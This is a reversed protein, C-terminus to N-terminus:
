GIVEFELIEVSTGWMFISIAESPQEKLSAKIKLGEKQLKKPLSNPRWKKGTTDIIGWFGGSIKQYQITGEIKM